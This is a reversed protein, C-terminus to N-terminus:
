SQRLFEVAARLRLVAEARGILALITFPDPSKEKGSLAVRLPWLINKKGSKEAYPFIKEKVSQSTFSGDPLEQLIEGAKSLHLLTDNRDLARCLLESDYKIKRGKVLFDWEGAKTEKRFESLTSLREFVVTLLEKLEKGNRGMKFEEPVSSMVFTNDEGVGKRIYERNLWRLKDENFIAGSKQVKSLNFEKILEGVSMIEKDDGPNWGLFALFNILAEPLYGEKKYYSVSVSEGHKRKSLKSKDAALILPIHAYKPRPANIAEQILIQRPTNSIHDEGRIVHTIGMLFDDVVVALHFLPEDFSKAIVFDKLETTDFEIEGKILDRWAVKKNPNKFRIVEERRGTNATPQRNGAQLPLDTAPQEKSIYAHGSDVLQKLYKKHADGRDSQDYSLGLWKLSDIIDEEYKPESREKDTDEVRLIFKGGNQKAFLYNFLATRAGGVHFPGTPSPAFRVIPKKEM